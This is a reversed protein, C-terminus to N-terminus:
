ERSLVNRYGTDDGDFRENGDPRPYALKELIIPVIPLEM